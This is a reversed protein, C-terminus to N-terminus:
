SNNDPEWGEKYHLSDIKNTGNGLVIYAKGDRIVFPQKKEDETLSIDLAEEIKSEICHMKTLDFKDETEYQTLLAEADLIVLSYDCNYLLYIKNIFHPKGDTGIEFINDNCGITIQYLGTSFDKFISIALREKMRKSVKDFVQGKATNRDKLLFELNCIRCDKHDNNMHDVVYGKETFAKLVDQGYWKAMIYRHLGGGLAKNTPYGKTDLNWVHSKMEEYYDARYSTLVPTDWGERTIYVTDGQIRFGNTTNKAM